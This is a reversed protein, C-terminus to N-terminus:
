KEELLSEFVTVYKQIMEDLSFKELARIRAHKKFSDKFSTLSFLKDAFQQSSIKRGNWFADGRTPTLFGSKGDEVLEPMAGDAVGCVPLGCALSEIVNNPCPPNLHTLLFVDASREYMPLESNNIRGLFVANKFSAYKKPIHSAKGTFAGAIFFKFNGDYKKRYYSLADFIPVIQDERRFASVTFFIKQDPTDRLDLKEGEPSFLKTNVGNYILTSPDRLKKGLFKEACYKSYRSQYITYDAFAHRIITAKANLFPFKWSAVSWYLVGDLRQVIPKRRFKAEILYKFPAQVIMFLIDYDPRYEFFVEHGRKEMGEKFKLTFETTGGTDKITFPLFIKM